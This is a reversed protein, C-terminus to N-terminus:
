PSMERSLAELREAAASLREAVSRELSAARSNAASRADKMTAIEDELDEIKLLSSALKDAIVLSAMLLLRSDGVQGFARKLKAVETDILQALETLHEEEGEDCQMAYPRDNVTVVVQAM